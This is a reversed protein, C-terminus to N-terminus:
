ESAGVLHDFLSTKKHVAYTQKQCLASMELSLELTRKQPYLPCRLNFGGHGSIVWLPCRVFRHKISSAQNWTWPRDHKIPKQVICRWEGM